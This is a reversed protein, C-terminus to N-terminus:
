RRRMGSVRIMRRDCSSPTGTETTGTQPNASDAPSAVANTLIFKQDTASAAAGASASAGATQTGTAGTTGATGATGTTGSTGTTTDPATSPAAQLCGTVTIKKDSSSSSPTTTQPPTQAALTVATVGVIAAFTGSWIRNRM